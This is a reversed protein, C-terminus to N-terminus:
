HTHTYGIAHSSSMAFRYESSNKAMADSITSIADFVKLADSSLAFFVKKLKRVVFFVVSFRYLFLCVSLVKTQSKNAHCWDSQIVIAYFGCDIGKEPCIVAYLYPKMWHSCCAIVNWMKSAQKSTTTKKNRRLKEIKLLWFMKSCVNKTPKIDETPFRDNKHGCSATETEGLSNWMQIFFITQIFAM